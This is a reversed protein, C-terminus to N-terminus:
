LELSEILIIAVFVFGDFNFLCFCRFSFVICIISPLSPHFVYSNFRNLFTFTSVCVTFRTISSSLPAISTKTFLLLRALVCCYNINKKSFFLNKCCLTNHNIFNQNHQKDSYRIKYEITYICVLEEVITFISDFTFQIVVITFFFIRTM